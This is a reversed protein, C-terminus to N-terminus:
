LYNIGGKDAGAGMLFVPDRVIVVEKPLFVDKGVGGGDVRPQM